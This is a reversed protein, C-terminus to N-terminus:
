RGKGVSGPIFATAKQLARQVESHKRGYTFYIVLGIALWILFAIKTLTTLEYILGISILVGIIPVVPVWPTRFPRNLNPERVRMAWVSACVIAFATLTGINTLDALKDVPFFAAVIAVCVGVVISSVYPTKFKKHIRSAWKFLLGDGSMTYFVRSQGLLMVLMTSSLGCIAGVDVLITGWVLGTAGVGLAVPDPVNLTNWPVIGTLLGGVLIYLVTCIILSGLIGVPMDKQPKSSEQAATSVADFGIYAFFIFAAGKFVGSWGFPMFPTWNAVAHSWGKTNLFVIAIGAFVLLVSVKIVVIVTNINASESIGIILIATIMLIGLFALLNFAGVAHPLAALASASVDKVSAAVQWYGHYRVLQTGNAASLAPPLGLGLSHLLSNIYGSWGVAVTAAGFAYEMILAWGVIWAVIEGLGTYSYSYASGAIPIAASFEAYCIGAFASAVAAVIFSLIVAPGAYIASAPGVLVFIGTGIIAGIGLTVLNFPGLTRKLGSKEGETEALMAHVDKRALLNLGM